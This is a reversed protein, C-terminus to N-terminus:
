VRVLVATSTNATLRKYSERDLTRPVAESPTRQKEIASGLIDFVQVEAIWTWGGM